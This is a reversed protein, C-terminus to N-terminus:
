FGEIDMHCSTTDDDKIRPESYKNFYHDRDREDKIRPIFPPVLKRTHVADWPMTFYEHEAITEASCLRKPVDSHCLRKM